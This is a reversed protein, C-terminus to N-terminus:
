EVSAMLKAITIKCRAISKCCTWKSTMHISDTIVAKSKPVIHILYEKGSDLKVLIGQHEILDGLVELLKEKM